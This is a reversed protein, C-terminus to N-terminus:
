LVWSNTQWPLFSETVSHQTRIREPDQIIPLLHNEKGLLAHMGLILVCSPGKPIDTYRERMLFIWFLKVKWKRVFLVDWPFSIFNLNILNVLSTLFKMGLESWCMIARNKQYWNRSQVNNFCSAVAFSVCNSNVKILENAASQSDPCCDLASRSEQSVYKLKWCYWIIPTM